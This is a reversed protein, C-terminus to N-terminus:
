KIGRKIIEDSAKYVDKSILTRSIEKGDKFGVLHVNVKCGPKASQVKEVTGKPLSPDDEYITKPPTEDYVENVLKYKIKNLSSNSYINFYISGNKVFGEIYLPYSLTNKFKYDISDESVTADFGPEIYAPPISHNVREVPKINSTTIANYLTTSVQCIGGGIGKELRNNLIIPAEQFGRQASTKGVKKNFSFDEGPMLLTGNIFSTALQINRVRGIPSNGLSTSYSSIISNVEMLKKETIKSETKQFKAIIEKSDEGDKLSLNIKNVLDEKDLKEGAVDKIIIPKGNNISKISANKPDKNVEKEIKNVIKTIDEKYNLLTNYDKRESSKILKYKSYFNLNKGQSFAKDLINDLSDNMKINSLSFNYTKDSAKIFIKKEKLDNLAKTVINHAEEKTKGSVDIDNIFTNPYIKNDFRSVQLHFSTYLAIAGILITIISIAVTKWAKM